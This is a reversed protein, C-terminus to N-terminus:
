ATAGTKGKAKINPKARILKSSEKKPTNKAVDQNLEEESAEVESDEEESSM